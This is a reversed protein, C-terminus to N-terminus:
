RRGGAREACPYRGGAPLLCLRAPFDEPLRGAPPLARAIDQRDLYASCAAVHYRERREDAEYWQAFAAAAMAAPEGSAFYERGLAVAIDAQSPWNIMAEWVAPEGDLLREWALLLAIASADAELAFVARAHDSRTLTDDPCVGRAFQELHRLEHLLIAQHMEPAQGRGLVIRMAAPEFYGEAGDMADDLCLAPALNDLAATLAPHRALTPRLDALLGALYREDASEARLHPAPLCVPDARAPAPLAFLLLTLLRHM